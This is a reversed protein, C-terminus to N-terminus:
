SCTPSFTPPVGDCATNTSSLSGAGAAGAPGIGNPGVPQVSSPEPSGAARRALVTGDSVPQSSSTGSGCAPWGGRENTIMCTTHTTVESFATIM